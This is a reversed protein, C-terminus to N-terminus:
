AIEKIDPGSHVTDVREITNDAGYETTVCRYNIM